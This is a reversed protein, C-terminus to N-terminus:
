RSQWGSGIYDPIQFAAIVTQMFVLVQVGMVDAVAGDLLLNLRVRIALPERSEPTRFFIGEIEM